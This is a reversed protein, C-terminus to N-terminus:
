ALGWAPEGDWALSPELSCLHAGPVEPRLGELQFENWVKAIFATLKACTITKCM